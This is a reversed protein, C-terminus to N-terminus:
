RKVSAIEIFLTMEGHFPVLTVGPLYYSFGSAFRLSHWLTKSTSFHHSQASTVEFSPFTKWLTLWTEQDDCTRNKCVIRKYHLLFSTSFYLDQAHSFHNLCAVLKYWSVSFQLWALMKRSCWIDFIEIELLRILFTLKKWDHQNTSHMILWYSITM